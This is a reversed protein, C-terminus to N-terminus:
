PMGLLERIGEKDPQAHSESLTTGDQTNNKHCENIMAGSEIIESSMTSVSPVPMSTEVSRRVRRSPRNSLSGSSLVNMDRGRRKTGLLGCAVAELAKITPPRSRTSQRRFNLSSQQDYTEMVQPSDQPPKTESPCSPKKVNPGELKDPLAIRLDEDTDYDVPEHPLNLDILTRPQLKEKPVKPDTAAAICCSDGGPVDKNKGDLSDKISPNGSTKMQFLDDEAHMESAKSSDLVHQTEEKKLQRAKAFYSTRRGTGEYKCATLRRRKAVPAFYVQQGSKTGSTFHCKTDNSLDKSNLADLSQDNSVHSNISKMTSRITDINEVADSPMKNGSMYNSSEKKNKDDSTRRDSGVRDDELSDHSYPQDKESHTSPEYDCYPAAPLSLERVKCLGEKVLSTDIVTFKMMVSNDNPLGPPVYCQQQHDSLGNQDLKADTAWGNEDSNGGNCKAEEADLVLLSPESAVKSLVDSISDFYHNGKVLKNRSFKKIGPILFVLAHKSGVSSLDKPQESHWGRALLRPWVAEWFIDNSRAKSLRFDGTLFKIIDASTLLSCAKGIPIEPHLSINQNTRTPDMVTGTLGHKGEGIGIAKVLGEMGVTSKLTLIFGEFSASGENFTKFAEMLSVHVEKPIEPLLRSLLEQQRWGTFIRQGFICRRSRIKRCESWRRYADSRYFKGYYYSLIDGMTKHDVFKGVQVLNKGFIYLGLLFSQKEGDTWSSTPSDPLAIYGKAKRQLSAISGTIMKDQLTTCEKSTSRTFNGRDTQDDAFEDKGASTQSPSGDHYSNGAISAIMTSFNADVQSENNERCVESEVQCSCIKSGSFKDQKEDINPSPHHIWTTPIALGIGVTYELVLISGDNLPRSDLQAREAETVLNPIEVQFQDGIRPCVPSEDISEGRGDSVPLPLQGSYEVTIHDERRELELYNMLCIARWSCCGIM